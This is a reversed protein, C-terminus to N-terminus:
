RAKQRSRKGLHGCSELAAARGCVGRGRRQEKGMARAVKQRVLYEM